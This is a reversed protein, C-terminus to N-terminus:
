LIYFLRLFSYIRCLFICWFFIWDCFLRNM